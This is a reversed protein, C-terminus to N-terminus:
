IRGGFVYWSVLAVVGIVMVFAYHYVYGSELRSSTAALPQIASLPSCHSAALPAGSAM